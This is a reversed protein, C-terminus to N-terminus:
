YIARLPESEQRQQMTKGPPFGSRVRHQQHSRVASVQFVIYSILIVMFLGTQYPVGDLM